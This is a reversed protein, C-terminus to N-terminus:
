KYKLILIGPVLDNFRLGRGIMQSAITGMQTLSTDETFNSLERIM